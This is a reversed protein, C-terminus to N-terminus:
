SVVSAAEPLARLREILSLVVQTDLAGVLRFRMHGSPDVLITTPLSPINFSAGLRGAPDSVSPYTVEFEHIFRRGLVVGDKYDVGIFAVGEDRVRRWLTELAPQDKRCPACWSAWFSVLVVKGQYSAPSVSGSVVAPGEVRPMVGSIDAYPLRPGSSCVALTGVAAGAAIWRKM